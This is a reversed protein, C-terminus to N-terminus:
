GRTGARELEVAELGKEPEKGEEMWDLAAGTARPDALGGPRESPKKEFLPQM